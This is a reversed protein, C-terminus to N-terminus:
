EEKNVESSVSAVKVPEDYEEPEVEVEEEVPPPTNQRKWEKGIECLGERLHDVEHQLVIARFGKFEKTYSVRSEDEYRMTITDNRDVVAEFGPYSLCMERSKIVDGNYILIEPNIFITIKKDLMTAIVRKAVGIQSAALGVGNKSFFLVRGMDKILSKIDEDKEIAICKESLAPDAWKLIKGLIKKRYSASKKQSDLRKKNRAKSKKKGKLRGM